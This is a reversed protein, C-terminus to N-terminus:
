VGRNGLKLKILVSQVVPKVDESLRLIVVGAIFLLLFAVSRIVMWLFGSGDNFLLFCVYYCGVALLITFITKFSFPQMGFKKWLFLYRIANYIGFSVLNAIAPGIIGIQRTLIYNLPLMIAFLILGTVFEFKWYTSTGIIQANVGTGMDLLRSLGLFFFVYKALEYSEKLRFTRIGEDFNLWVLCFMASAFILQNISSRKYIQNIKSSDKEKWAQSLPGVSASIVARQPAQILSGINQAFTFVGAVAMGNPLVAALVITDFVSAINFVLGGAWVFSILTKMKGAFRRTVQSIAFVFHLRKNKALYILVLVVLLIYAFSYLKIFLDFSKIVKFTTLVILETVIFRFLV